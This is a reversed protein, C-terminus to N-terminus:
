AWTRWLHKASHAKSESLVVAIRVDVDLFVQLVVDVAQAVDVEIAIDLVVM